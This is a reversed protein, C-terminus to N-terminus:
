ARKAGVDRGDAERDVEGCRRVDALGAALAQGLVADQLQERQVVADGAGAAKGAGAILEDLCPTVFLTSGAFLERPEDGVDHQRGHDVGDVGLALAYTEGDDVLVYIINSHAVEKVAHVFAARATTPNAVL